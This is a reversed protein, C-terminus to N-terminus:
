WNSAHFYERPYNNTRLAGVIRKARQPVQRAWESDEAEDAATDWAGDKVAAIMRRFKQLGDLGLNYAMNVLADYRASGPPPIGEIGFIHTVALVARDWGEDFMGEAVRTSVGNATLNSGWGVTTNGFTDQYPFSRYGEDRKIWERGAHIGM